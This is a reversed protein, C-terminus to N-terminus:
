CTTARSCRWRTATSAIACRQAQQVWAAPVLSGAVLRDRSYPEYYDYHTVLRRRHLAGGRRRDRVRRRASRAPWNSSIPPMSARAALQVAPAGRAPGTPSIAAWCPWACPVTRPWRRWRPNPRIPAPGMGADPGQLADYVAALSTADAAFPGVHDLSGVFPFSGTRPLRGFTPKLGFVGCLSAPVRISGNTDSGLTLPVLDGAVAAASGGAIRAPRASQPLRRLALERDHLRLRARGHQARGGAGRRGRAAAGGARCRAARAPQRRQRPRRGAHGRRRYRVPEQGCLARRGAAAPNAEARRADIAAAEQRARTETVSTFCHYRPDAERIRALTAELVASASREGDRIQRALGLRRQERRFVSASELEVPLAEDIFTSAIDHIRAFQQTVEATAPERLAYGALALASRVYQDITEQTM